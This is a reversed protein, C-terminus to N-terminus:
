SIALRHKAKEASCRTQYYGSCVVDKLLVVFGKCTKVVRLGKTTRNNM